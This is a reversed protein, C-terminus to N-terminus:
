VSVFKHQHTPPVCSSTSLHCRLLVASAAACGFGMSYKYALPMRIVFISFQNEIICLTKATIHTQLCCVTLIKTTNKRSSSKGSGQKGLRKGVQRGQLYSYRCRNWIWVCRSNQIAFAVTFRYIEDWWKAGRWVCECRVYALFPVMQRNRYEQAVWASLMWVSHRTQQISYIKYIWVHNSQTVRLTALFPNNVWKAM